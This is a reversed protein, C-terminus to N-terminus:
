ANFSEVVTLSAAAATSRSSKPAKASRAAIRSTLVAVCESKKPTSSSMTTTQINELRFYGKDDQAAPPMCGCAFHRLVAISRLIRM